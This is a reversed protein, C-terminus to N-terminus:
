EDKSYHVKGFLGYSIPMVPGSKQFNITMFSFFFYDHYKLEASGMMENVGFLTHTIPTREAIARRHDAESPKTMALAALVIIILILCGCGWGSSEQNTSTM